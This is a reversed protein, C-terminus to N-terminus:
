PGRRGASRLGKLEADAVAQEILLTNQPRAVLAARAEEPRVGGYALV